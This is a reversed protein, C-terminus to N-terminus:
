AYNFMRISDFKTINLRRIRTGLYVTDLIMEFLKIFLHAINFFHTKNVPPKSTENLIYVVARRNTRTLTANFVCTIRM